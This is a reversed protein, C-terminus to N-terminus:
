RIAGTGRHAEVCELERQEEDSFTNSGDAQAEEAAGPCRKVQGTRALQKFATGRDALPIFNLGNEGVSYAGFYIQARSISGLADFVGTHSFDDMWGVFDPTYPRGHAVVHTSDTFADQLEAFAGRTNGVDVAGTGFDISRDKTALAIDALPPYTRNLEVLDNGDGRRRVLVRLDRVTPVAERAFPRLEALYPRLKKAAPKSAAVFPDLDDLTARLNVYTTNAQRLFPPFRGIAEALAEKEDALARTTQNLNGVLSALDDRRAALATVLRSSDVLFRKLVPPERSLEEFLRSSAALNPNLYLLGRNAQEGRGSYARFNGKYFGRLARRTPKDFINFLQDFEVNATTRDTPIVGGDPIDEGAERESPLFLEIYRNSTSSLSGARIIARTGLRLPAYKDEVSFEVEAQGDPTIEFGKVEGAKTGGIEVYNGRVLQGANIFRAKITYDGGGGFLVVAVLAIAGLV